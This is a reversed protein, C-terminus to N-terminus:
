DEDAPGMLTIVATDDEETLLLADVRAEWLAIGDAGEVCPTVHLHYKVREGESVLLVLARVAENHLDTTTQGQVTFEVSTPPGLFDRKVEVKM